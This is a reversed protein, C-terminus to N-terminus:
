GRQPLARLALRAARVKGFSRQRQVHALRVAAELNEVHRRAVVHREDDLDALPPAHDLELVHRGTGVRHEVGLQSAQRAVRALAVQGLDGDGGAARVRQLAQHFFDADIQAFERRGVAEPAHTEKGAVAGGFLHLAVTVQHRELRGFVQPLAGFAHEAVVHHQHAALPEVVDEIRDVVFLKWRVRNRARRRHVELDAFIRVLTPTDEARM